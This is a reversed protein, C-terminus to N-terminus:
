GTTTNWDPDGILRLGDLPRALVPLREYVLDPFDSWDLTKALPEAIVFKSVHDMFVPRNSPVQCRVLHPNESAYYCQRGCVDCVRRAPVSESRLTGRVHILEDQPFIVTVWDLTFKDLDGERMTAPGLIASPCYREIQRWLGAHIVAVDGPQSLLLLARRVPPLAVEIRRPYWNAVQHNCGRCFATKPWPRVYCADYDDYDSTIWWYYEVPLNM